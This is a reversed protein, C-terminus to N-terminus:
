NRKTYLNAFAQRDMASLQVGAGQPVFKCVSNRGSKLLFSAMPYLMISSRDIEPSQAFGPDGNATTTADGRLAGEMRLGTQRSFTSWQYNTQISGRDWFNPAGAMAKYIGPSRGQPDAMFAPAGESGPVRTEIYGPDPEFKLESQCQSHYHEHALGLAHGFEHLVTLRDSRSLHAGGSLMVPGLELNMTREGPRLTSALAQKGILSWSGNHDFAVRITGAPTRDGPSWTRFGGDPKRFSMYFRVKPDLWEKAAAEILPYYDALGDGAQFAISVDRATWALNRATVFGHGDGAEKAYAAMQELARPPLRDPLLGVTDDDPDPRSDTAANEGTDSSDDAGDPETADPETAGPEAAGAETTVPKAAQAFTQALPLTGWAIVALLCALSRATSREM